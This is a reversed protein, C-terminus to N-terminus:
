RDLHGPDDHVAPRDFARRPPRAPAPRGTPGARSSTVAPPQTRSTPSCSHPPRLDPLDGAAAARGRGRRLRQGAPHLRDRGEGGAAARSPARIRARASPCCTWAGPGRHLSLHEGRVDRHDAGDAGILRVQVRPSRRLVGLGAAMSCSRSTSMSTCGPGRAGLHFPKLADEHHELQEFVSANIPDEARVRFVGDFSKWSLLCRALSPITPGVVQPASSASGSV